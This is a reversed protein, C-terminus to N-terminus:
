KTEIKWIIKLKLLDTKKKKKKKLDFKFVFESMVQMSKDCKKM